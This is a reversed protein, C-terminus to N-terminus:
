IGLMDILFLLLVYGFMGGILVTVTLQMLIGMLFGWHTAVHDRGHKSVV